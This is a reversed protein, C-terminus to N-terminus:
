FTLQQILGLNFVLKLKKKIKKKKSFSRLFNFYKDFPLPKECYIYNKKNAFNQIYKNHSLTNSAVVVHTYVKSNINYYKAPKINYKKFKKCFINSRHYDRSLVDITSSKDIKLINEVHRNAISGTGIVLINKKM